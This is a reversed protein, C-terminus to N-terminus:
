RWIHYSKSKTMTVIEFLVVRRELFSTKRNNNTDSILMEQIDLEVLGGTKSAVVAKPQKFFPSAKVDRGAGEDEDSLNAITRKRSGNQAQSKNM